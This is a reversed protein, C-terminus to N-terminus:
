IKMEMKKDYNQFWILFFFFFLFLSSFNNSKMKKEALYAFWSFLDVNLTSLQISNLSLSHTFCKKVSDMIFHLLLLRFLSANPFYIRDSEMGISTNTDLDLHIKIKKQGWDLRENKISTKNENQKTQKKWKTKALGECSGYRFSVNEGIVNWESCDFEM